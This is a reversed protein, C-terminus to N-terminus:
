VGRAGQRKGICLHLETAATGRCDHRGGAFHQLHAHRGKNARSGSGHSSGRHPRAGPRRMRNNFQDANSKMSPRGGDVCESTGEVRVSTAINRNRACAFGLSPSLAPVQRPAHYASAFRGRTGCTSGGRDDGADDFQLAAARDFGAHDSCALREVVLDREIV